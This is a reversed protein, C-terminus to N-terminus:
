LEDKSLISQRIKKDMLPDVLGLSLFLNKITHKSNKDDEAEIYTQYLNDLLIKKRSRENAELGTLLIDRITNYEYGTQCHLSISNVIILDNPTLKKDKITRVVQMKNFHKSVSNLIIGNLAEDDLKILASLTTDEIGLYKFHAKNKVTVETRVLNAIDKNEHYESLYNKWFEISEYILELGKHYIKVYPTSKYSTTDRVSFEIGANGKERFLRYGKERIKSEKSLHGIDSVQTKFDKVLGDKKIDVDTCHGNLLDQYTFFVINLSIIFDYITKITRESIGYFYAGKSMKSTIGFTLYQMGKTEAFHTKVDEIKLYISIGDFSYKKANYKYSAIEQGTDKVVTIVESGLVHDLIKVKSIPIRIKLSDICPKYNLEKLLTNDLDFDKDLNTM